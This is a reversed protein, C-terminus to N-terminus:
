CYRYCRLLQLRRLDATQAPVPFISLVAENSSLQSLLSTM